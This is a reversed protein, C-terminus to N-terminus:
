RSYNKDIRRGEIGAAFIKNEITLANEPSLINIRALQITEWTIWIPVFFPLHLFIDSAKFQAAENKLKARIVLMSKALVPLFMVAITLSGWAEHGQKLFDVGTWSDTGMDLGPLGANFIWFIFLKWVKTMTERWM